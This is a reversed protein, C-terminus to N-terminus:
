LPLPYSMLAGIANERVAVVELISTPSIQKKNMHCLFYDSKVKCKLALTKGRTKIMAKVSSNKVSPHQFNIDLLMIRFSNKGPIIETHFAGPMRIIGGHPGPAEEGHAFAQSMTTVILFIVSLVVHRFHKM